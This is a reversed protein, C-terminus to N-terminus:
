FMPYKLAPAYLVSKYLRHNATLSKLGKSKVIGNDGIYIQCNTDRVGLPNEIRCTYFGSDSKKADYIVLESCSESTYIMTRMTSLIPDHDKYWTVNPAPFGKFGIKLIITDDHHHWQDDLRSTFEPIIQKRKYSGLNQLRCALISPLEVDNENSAVIQIEERQLM